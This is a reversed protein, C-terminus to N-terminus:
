IGKALIIGTCIYMESAKGKSLMFTINQNGCTVQLVQPYKKREEAYLKAEPLNKEM